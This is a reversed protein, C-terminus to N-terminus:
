EDGRKKINIQTPFQNDTKYRWYYGYAKLSHHENKCSRLINGSRSQGTIALAAEKLSNFEQVFIGNIDYQLVPRCKTNHHFRQSLPVKMANLRNTITKINIHLLNAIEVSTKQENWLQLIKQDLQQNGHFFGRNHLQQNSINNKRLIRRITSPHCSLQQSIDHIKNGQNWLQLIKEQEMLSYKLIGDGGYTYNYGQNFSNLKLILIKEINKAEQETLHTAFIEHNIHEWGYKKIANYIPQNKYGIGNEGWRQNVTMSTIGVYYKNNPFQHIYVTWNDNKVIM